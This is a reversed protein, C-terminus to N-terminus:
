DSFSSFSPNAIRQGSKNWSLQKINQNNIFTIESKKVGNKYYWVCKGNKKGDKYQTYRQKKGNKYWWVWDGEKKGDLYNGGMGSAGNDYNKYAFGTFPTTEGKAYALGNKKELNDYNEKRKEQANLSVFFFVTFLIAVLYKSM